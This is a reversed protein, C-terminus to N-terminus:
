IIIFFGICPGMYIFFFVYLYHVNQYRCGTRVCLVASNQNAYPVSTQDDSVYSCEELSVFVEVHIDVHVYLSTFIFM